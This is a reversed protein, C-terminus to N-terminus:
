AQDVRQSVRAGPRAPRRGAGAAARLAVLSAIEAVDGLRGRRVSPTSPVLTVALLSRVPAPSCWPSRPSGTRTSRRAGRRRDILLGLIGSALGVLVESGTRYQRTRLMVVVCAAVALLTGSLGLTVALPATLVLLAGM